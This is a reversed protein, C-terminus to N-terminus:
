AGIIRRILDRPIQCLHATIYRDHTVLEALLLSFTRQYLACLLALVSHWDKNLRHWLRTAALRM